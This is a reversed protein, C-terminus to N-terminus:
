NFASGDPGKVTGSIVGGAAASSCSIVLIALSVAKLVPNM